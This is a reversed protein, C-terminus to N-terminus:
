EDCLFYANQYSNRYSDNQERTHKNCSHSTSICSPLLAWRKKSFKVLHILWCQLFTKLTQLDPSICGVLRLVRLLCSASLFTFICCLLQRSSPHCRNARVGVTSTLNPQLTTAPAFRPWCKVPPRDFLVAISYLIGRIDIEPAKERKSHGHIGAKLSPM